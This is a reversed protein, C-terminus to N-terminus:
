EDFSEATGARAKSIIFRNYAKLLKKGGRWIIFLALVLVILLQWPFVFFKVTDTARQGQTGYAIDINAFYLGVAFNRWQYGVKHFFAGMASTALPADASEPHKIWDVTFKRTSSPLINGQVPNADIRDARLYVTNRITIKGVPKVRDGGDNRFRYEFSVPLTNYWFTKNKTQFDVLGGAEKVEGNVSLLVLMGTKASIAVEGPTTSEPATGWFIAGFYGGPTTNAPITIALSITKSEKPGLTISPATKMWTGIGETPNVFAPSGTDGQAEFNAYSSYYTITTDQENILTMEETLTTGPDGNIEIRVPTITLAHAVTASFFFSLIGAIFSLRHLLHKM